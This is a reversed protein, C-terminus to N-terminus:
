FYYRLGVAADLQFDTGPLLFLIPVLEAFGEFPLAKFRYSIGVPMRVGFNANGDFRLIGGMGYHVPISNGSLNIFGYNHILYDAHVHLRDNKGTSWAIAADYAVSRGKWTKVSLGTPGGIIIGFGTSGGAALVTNSGTLLIIVILSNMYKM